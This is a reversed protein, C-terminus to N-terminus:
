VLGLVAGAVGIRVTQGWDLALRDAELGDGFVVGGTGGMEGTVELVAERGVVDGATLATGTAASPWAERVFFTLRPEGPAPLPHTFGRERAISAAWGTAGTGTAVILGSSSQRERRGGDALVARVDRRVLDDIVHQQALQSVLGAVQELPAETWRGTRLDVTFDIRRALRVPDTVRLTVAGQVALDQFDATRAHFLFPLERDDVPVEAVATHRPRFWFTLGPGDGALVGRRYSLVHATPEARLHRLFPPTIDAM